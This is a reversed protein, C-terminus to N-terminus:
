LLRGRTWISLHISGMLACETQLKRNLIKHENKMEEFHALNGTWKTRRSKIVGTIGPSSYM